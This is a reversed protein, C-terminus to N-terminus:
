DDLLRSGRAKVQTRPWLLGEEQRRKGALYAGEAWQLSAFVLSYGVGGAEGASGKRFGSARKDEMLERNFLM